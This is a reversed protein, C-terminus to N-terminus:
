MCLACKCPMRMADTPLGKPCSLRANSDNRKSLSAAAVQAAPVHGLTLGLLQSNLHPGELALLVSHSGVGDCKSFCCGHEQLAPEKGDGSQNSLHTPTSRSLPCCDPKNCRECHTKQSVSAFTAAGDQLICHATPSVGKPLAETTRLGAVGRKCPM